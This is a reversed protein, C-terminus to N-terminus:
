HHTLIKDLVSINMDSLYEPHDKLTKRLIWAIAEKTEETLPQDYSVPRNEFIAGCIFSAFTRAMMENRSGSSLVEVLSNLASLTILSYQQYQQSMFEMVSGKDPTWGLCRLCEVLYNKTEGGGLILVTKGCSSCRLERADALHLLRQMTIGNQAMSALCEEDQPDIGVKTIRYESM